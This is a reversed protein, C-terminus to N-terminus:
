SAGGENKQKRRARGDRVRRPSGSQKQDTIMWDRKDRTKRSRARRTDNLRARTLNDRRADRYQPWTKPEAQQLRRVAVASGLNFHYASAASRAKEVGQVLAVGRSRDSEGQSCLDGRRRLSALARSGHIRLNMEGDIFIRDIPDIDSDDDEIKYLSLESKLNECEIGSREM